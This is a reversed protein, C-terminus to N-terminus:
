ASLIDEALGLVYRGLAPAATLGPSEIGVLDILGELGRAAEHNIEFDREPEGKQYLKPRIGAMDPALDEKRLDPLYDRAGAFFEELHAPDVAHDPEEVYFANPGLKLGGALDVVTHLGLSIGTPPPYVLRRCLRSSSGWLRFYEGKCPYTAYGAAAVDVGASEAVAAAGLGAANVVVRSFLEMEDGDADRIILRFGGPQKELGILECNYAVTGAAEVRKEFHAMLRHSDVIGTRPSLLGGVAKVGPELEAVRAADLLELEEVGNERGRRSLDELVALDPETLAIIIKGVRRLPIGYKEGLRYIERNGEVCFRARWSGPPYYIGAHIVESNRSSAERGFSDHRELVIVERGAAALEAAIALGVVGAGVVTTEIREM